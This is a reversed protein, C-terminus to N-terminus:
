VLVCSLMSWLPSSCPRVLGTQYLLSFFTNRLDHFIVQTGAVCLLFHRLPPCQGMIVRQLYSSTEPTPPTVLREKTIETHIQHTMFSSLM